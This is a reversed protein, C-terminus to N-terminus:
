ADDDTSEPQYDVDTSAPAEDRNQGARRAEILAVTDVVPDGTREPQKQKKTPM